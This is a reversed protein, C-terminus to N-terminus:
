EITFAFFSLRIGYQNLVTLVMSFIMKVCNWSYCCYFAIIWYGFVWRVLFFFVEAESRNRYVSGCVPFFHFIFPLRNFRDYAIIKFTNQCSVWQPFNHPLKSEIQNHHFLLLFRSLFVCTTYTYYINFQADVETLQSSPPLSLSDYHTHILWISHIASSLRKDSAIVYIGDCM